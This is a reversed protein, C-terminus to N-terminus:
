FQPPPLKSRNEWVTQDWGPLLGKSMRGFAARVTEDDFVDKDVPPPPNYDPQFLSVFSQRSPDRDARPPCYGQYLTCRVCV